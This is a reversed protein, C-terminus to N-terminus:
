CLFLCFPTVPSCVRRDPRNLSRWSRLCGLSPPPEGLHKVQAIRHHQLNIVRSVAMQMSGFVAVM